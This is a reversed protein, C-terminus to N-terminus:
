GPLLKRVEMTLKKQLLHSFPSIKLRGGNQHIIMTKRKILEDTVKGRKNKPIYRRKTRQISLPNMEIEETMLFSITLYNSFM